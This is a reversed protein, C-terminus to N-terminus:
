DAFGDKFEQIVNDHPITNGADMQKLSIKLGEKHEEPIKFIVSKHAELDIINLLEELLFDENIEEIKEKLKKKLELTFM